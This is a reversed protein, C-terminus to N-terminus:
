IHVYMVYDAEKFVSDHHLHLLVKWFSSKFQTEVYVIISVSKIHKLKDFPIIKKVVVDTVVQVSMKVCMCKMRQEYDSCNANLVIDSEM